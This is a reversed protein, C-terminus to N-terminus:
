NWWFTFKWIIIDIGLIKDPVNTHTIPLVIRHYCYIVSAETLKSMTGTNLLYEWRYTKNVITHQITKLINNYTKSM